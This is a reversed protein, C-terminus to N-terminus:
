GRALYDAVIFDPQVTVGLGQVAAITLADGNNASFRSRVPFSEYRGDVAFVWAQSNGQSVYGLCEHHALEQPHLPRGHRALYAPSAVVRLLSTGLKRVIDGPA